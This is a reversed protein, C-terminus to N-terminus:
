LGNKIKCVYHWRSDPLIRERSRSQHNRKPSRAPFRGLDLFGQLNKLTQGLLYVMEGLHIRVYNERPKCGDIDGRESAYRDLSLNTIKLTVQLEHIGRVPTGADTAVQAVTRASAPSLFVLGILMATARNM